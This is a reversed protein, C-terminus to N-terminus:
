SLPFNVLKKVPSAVETRNELIISIIKCGMRKDKLVRFSPLKLAVHM